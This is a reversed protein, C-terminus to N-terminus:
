KVEELSALIRSKLRNVEMTEDNFQEITEQVVSTLHNVEKVQKQLQSDRVTRDELLTYLQTQADILKKYELILQEHKNFRETLAQDFKELAKKKEQDVTDILVAIDDATKRTEDLAEEEKQVIVMRERASKKLAAVQKKVQSYQEQTLEMTGVFLEQEKQEQQNLKGVYNIGQKEKENMSAITDILQQELTLDKSCAGLLLIIMTAAIFFKRM